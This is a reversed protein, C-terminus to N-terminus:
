MARRDHSPAFVPFVEHHVRFVAPTQSVFEGDAVVSMPRNTQVEIERGSMYRIGQANEFRGKRIASALAALKWFRQPELNYLNLIHDDIAAEESITMFGGYHRGNGIALEISFLDEGRGDCTIRVAFPRNEKYAAILSRVYGLPGLFKKTGETLYRTVQVGLGVHAVNFYYRGNVDGLDIKRVRGELIVKCAERPHEPIQLTRALDNATGLPVIGVPLGSRLLAEAALNLTGDGGGVVIRDIQTKYRAICESIDEPKETQCEIFSFRNEEFFATCDRLEEQKSSHRGAIILARNSSAAVSNEM